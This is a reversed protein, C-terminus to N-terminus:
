LKKFEVISNFVGEVYPLLEEPIEVTNLRQFAIREPIPGTVVGITQLYDDVQKKTEYKATTKVANPIFVFRVDPRIHQVVQIFILTSEFTIKDYRFPCIILDADMIIPIMDNDDIKGPMDILIIGNDLDDLTTKLEPYQAMEIGLVEYKQQQSFLVSDNDFISLLSRQFDMDLVIIENDQSTLYNALLMAITTKGAGGKQNAVIIKM